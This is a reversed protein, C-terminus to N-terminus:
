GHSAGKLAALAVDQNSMLNDICQRKGAIIELAIELEAVRARLRVLEAKIPEAGHWNGPEGTGGTVQEYRAFTM